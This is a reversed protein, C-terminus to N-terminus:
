RFSFVAREELYGSMTEVVCLTIDRYMTKRIRGMTVEFYGWEVRLLFYGDMGRCSLKEITQEFSFRFYKYFTPSIM